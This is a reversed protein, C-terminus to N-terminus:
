VVFGVYGGFAVADKVAKAIESSTNCRSSAVGMM